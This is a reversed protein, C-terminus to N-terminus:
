CTAICLFCLAYMSDAPLPGFGSWPGSCLDDVMWQVCTAPLLVLDGLVGAAHRSSARIAEELQAGLSRTSSAPLSAVRSAAEPQRCQPGTHSQSAANYTTANHLQQSPTGCIVFLIKALPPSVHGLMPRQTASVTNLCCKCPFCPLGPFGPRTDDFCGLM